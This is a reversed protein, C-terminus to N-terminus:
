FERVWRVQKRLRPRMAEGHTWKVMLDPPPAETFYQLLSAEGTGERKKNIASIELVRIEEFHMYLNMRKLLTNTASAYTFLSCSGVVRSSVPILKLEAEPVLKQLYNATHWLGKKYFNNSCEVISVLTAPDRADYESRLYAPTVDYGCFADMGCSERFNGKFFSKSSNVRLLVTTLLRELVPYVDSPIIIDDGFVRIMHARRRMGALTTDHDGYAVMIAFHALTAFVITQVPFTCASGMPAFKKLLLLKPGYPLGEPISLSRSRSAHLADLITQNSQFIYEVLRTSLRDSAASLDVTAYLGDRSASLAMQRSMEQNSFDISLGLPHGKLAAEFWRQIGGQIWQHASPESAILRPGRQTKPVCALRSPVERDSKTRDVFDTSAFWDPPFINGLKRPWSEFNYKPDKTDSVVGPGHKPSIEYPDLYGLAASSVRTLRRLLSWDFNDLPRDTDEILTAPETLVGWIPHGFRDVWKPNDCDWTDTHSPPLQAEVKIFDSITEDVRDQNCEMNFKKAFLYIQRLFFVPTPDLCERLTGHQDFVLSYLGWLFRPRTDTSSLAAHLPPRVGEAIKGETLCQHFWNCASPLTITLFSDGRALVQDHLRRRLREIEKSMAPYTSEIDKLISSYTGVMTNIHSKM